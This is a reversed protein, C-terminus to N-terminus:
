DEYDVKLKQLMEPSLAQSYPGYADVLTGKSGDAAEVAYVVSNDAPDSFGEFRYAKTITFQSPDFQDKKESCEIRTEQLNFNRTYGEQRLAELAESLSQFNHPMDISKTPVKDM